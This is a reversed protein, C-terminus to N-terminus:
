RRLFGDLVKRCAEEATSGSANSSNPHESLFAVYNTNNALDTCLLTKGVRQAEEQIGPPVRSYAKVKEACVISHKELKFFEEAHQSKM